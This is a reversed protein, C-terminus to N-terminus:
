LGVSECLRKLLAPLPQVVTLVSILISAMFCTFLTVM